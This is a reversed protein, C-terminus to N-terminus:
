RVILVALSYVKYLQEDELLCILKCVCLSSYIYNIKGCGISNCFGACLEFCTTFEANTIRGVRWPEENMELTEM